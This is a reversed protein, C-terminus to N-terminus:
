SIQAFDALTHGDALLGDLVTPLAQATTDKVHFLLRPNASGTTSLGVRINALMEAASIAGQADKSDSHWDCHSLAYLKGAGTLLKGLRNNPGLDGRPARWNKVAVGTAALVADHCDQFQKLVAADTYTPTGNKLHDWSHNGIVHSADSINKTAVKNAAVEEGLLFFAAILGRKRLEALIPDLASKPNPGDDFTLQLKHVM